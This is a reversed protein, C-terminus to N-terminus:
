DMFKTYEQMKERFSELNYIGLYELWGADQELWKTYGNEDLNRQSNLIRVRLRDPHYMFRNYFKPLQRLVIEYFARHIKNRYYAEIVPMVESRSRFSEYQVEPNAGYDLIMISTRIVENKLNLTNKIRNPIDLCPDFDRRKRRPPTTLPTDFNYNNNILKGALLQLIWHKNVDLGRSLMARIMNHSQQPAYPYLKVLWNLAFKAYSETNSDRNLLEIFLKELIAFDVKNNMSFNTTLPVLVGRVDADIELFKRVMLYLNGTTIM